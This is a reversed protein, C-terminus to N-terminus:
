EKNNNFNNNFVKNRAYAMVTERLSLNKSVPWSKGKEKTEQYHIDGNNYATEIVGNNVHIYKVKKSWKEAEQELRAKEVMDTYETM